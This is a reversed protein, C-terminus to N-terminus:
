QRIVGHIVSISLYLFLLSLIGCGTLIVILFTQAHGRAPQFMGSEPMASKGSFHGGVPRGIGPGGTPARSGVPMQRGKSIIRM